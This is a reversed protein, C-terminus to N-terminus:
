LLQQQVLRKPREVKKPQSGERDLDPDGDPNSEEDPEPDGELIVPNSEGVPEPDGELVVPNSEGDPYVPEDLVVPNSEGVPEPDGELVM